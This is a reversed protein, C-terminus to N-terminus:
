TGWGSELEAAMDGFDDSDVSSSGVSPEYGDPPQHAPLEKSLTISGKAKGPSSPVHNSGNLGKPEGKALGGVSDDEEDDNPPFSVKLGSKRSRSTKVRKQLPSGIPVTGGGVKKKVGGEDESDTMFRQRKRKPGGGGSGTSADTDNGDTEEDGYDGGGTLAEEDDTENLFADVEQAASDWDLETMDVPEAAISLPTPMDESEEIGPASSYTGNPNSNDASTPAPLIPPLPTAASLTTTGAPLPTDPLIYDEESQRKWREASDLLWETRVINIGKRRRAAHVKATGNQSAVVHTVGEHLDTFCQAGFLTALKWHDSDQPKTGLAIVGSFVLNVGVLVKRKMEPIIVKVDADDPHTFFEDRVSKLIDWVRDLETDDDKLVAEQVPEDEEEEADDDDDEDEEDEEDDEDSEDESSSSDSEDERSTVFAPAPLGSAGSGSTGAVPASTVKQKEEEKKEKEKGKSSSSSSTGSSIKRKSLPRSEIQDQITMATSAQAESISPSIITSLPQEHSVLGDSVDTVLIDGEKAKGKVDGEEGEKSIEKEKGKGGKKGDKSGALEKKKPLFAANIDGIGVFFEYPVVKVLNPSGDWVDARDDIIVVMSTDCPFLRQLSKRTMSGSEDRSLIRGGFLGGDPDIIRCVESAYARTGMTYVHMEYLAKIKTLFDRLGPRMKVFYWCGDEPAGGQPYDESGLKFKQTGDLAAFNPNTPDDLWEGVTPDVTAHIITQDLDVILSLKGASKLRTTTARELKNAEALSVTLGGLDHVMSIAARSTDSFGTYDTRTLDKGCLACLGHLQVDHTCPELLTLIPKENGTIVEGVKVQWSKLEGVVPSEWERVVRERKHQQGEGAGAGAGPPTPASALQLYSYSLLAQTKSIQSNPKQYLRTITIPYPLSSPLHLPTPRGEM